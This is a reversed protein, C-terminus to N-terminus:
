ISLGVFLIVFLAVVGWMDGRLFRWERRIIEKIYGM